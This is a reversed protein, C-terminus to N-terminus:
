EGLVKTSLYNEREAKWAATAAHFAAVATPLAATLATHLAASAPLAELTPSAAVWTNVAALAAALADGVAQLADAHRGAADALDAGRVFPQTAGQLRVLRGPAAVVDVDGSARLRVVTAASACGRLQTEGAEVAVAGEKSGKDIIFAFRDGSPLELVLAETTDRVVPRARLGPHEVVELADDPAGGPGSGQAVLVDARAGPAARTVRFVRAESM